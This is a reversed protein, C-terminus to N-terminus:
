KCIKIKSMVDVYFRFAGCIEWLFLYHFTVKLNVDVATNFSSEDMEVMPKREFFGACNVLMTPSKGFQKRIAAMAEEVARQQTVDMQVALHNKSDTHSVHSTSHSKSPM